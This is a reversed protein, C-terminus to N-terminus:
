KLQKLAKKNVKYKHTTRLQEVWENELYAQYDAIVAGRVDTAEEPQSLISYAYPFYYAWRGNNEPKDKGFGVADVIANEGEAAIVKEVKVDKGFKKRMTKVLTDTDIVNEALYGLAESRISDSTAFIIYGKFKPANWTYKDKNARFFRNLGEKDKSAKEWVNRNSIEFLLIGDHYENLLNRYETNEEPLRDIEIAVVKKDVLVGCNGMILLKVDDPKVKATVPMSAFLESVTIADGTNFTVCKRADNAFQAIVVSDYGENARCAAYIEEMVAEDVAPAYKEKLQLVKVERAKSSRGDNMIQNELDKRAEELTPIGKHDLKHIIHYGYSTAFPKTIEGDQASFAADEFPKVMRGSGFWDLKGGTRASGPDESERKAVENFDAGAILVNYISDIAEKQKAAQEAPMGQTLKLIHEVLVQGRAPRSANVRVIHYGFGSDIVPSIEGVPTTFAATEFPEPFMGNGTIFGMDGNGNRRVAPDISHALVMADWTVKGNIIDTRISDLTHRTALDEKTDASHAMMIHSVDVDKEMRSYAERILREQTEKDSLYPQALEIRYKDYESVFAATTDIGASIADAVKLKYTVFMDLYEEPSQKVGQQQNNKNYLYEFESLRTERNDIKLLVPDNSSGKASSVLAAFVVALTLLGKKM